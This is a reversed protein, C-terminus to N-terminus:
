VICVLVASDVIRIVLIGQVPGVSIRSARVLSEAEVPVARSKKIM